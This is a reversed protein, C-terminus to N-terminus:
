EDAPKPTSIFTASYALRADYRCQYRTLDSVDTQATQRSVDSCGDKPRSARWASGDDTLPTLVPAWTPVTLAVVYGKEVDLARDLPFQVKRGFYPELDMVPSEAVVRAYRKTGTRLISIGASARGFGSQNEFFDIEDPSPDGLKVTWAVIKGDRPIRYPGRDSGVKVQFGTTRSLALCTQDDRQPCTPHAGTVTGIEYLKASAPAATGALVAAAALLPAIFRRRPMSPM